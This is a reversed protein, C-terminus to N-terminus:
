SCPPNGHLGCGFGSPDDTVYSITITCSASCADTTTNGSANGADWSYSISEISSYGDSLEGTLSISAGTCSGACTPASTTLDTYSITASCQAVSSSRIAFILLFFVVIQKM